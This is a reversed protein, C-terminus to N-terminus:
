AYSYEGKGVYHANKTVVNGNRYFLFISRSNEITVAFCEGVADCVKNREAGSDTRWQRAIECAVRSDVKKTIKM